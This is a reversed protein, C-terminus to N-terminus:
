GARRGDPRGPLQARFLRLQSHRADPRGCGSTGRVAASRRLSTPYNSVQQVPIRSFLEPFMQLMTERNELMYSVGSPTRANDELVFFDDPGTRVIDTGVIHTYIEGPPNVGVM